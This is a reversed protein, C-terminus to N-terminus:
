RIRGLKEGEEERRGLERESNVEWSYKTRRKLFSELM